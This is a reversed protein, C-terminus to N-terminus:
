RRRLSLAPIPSAPIQAAEDSTGGADGSRGPGYGAGQWGGRLSAVSSSVSPAASERSHFVSGGGGEGAREGGGRALGKQASESFFENYNLRLLLQRLYPAKPDNALRNSRLITYLRTSQRAFSNGLTEVEAFLNASAMTDDAQGSVLKTVAACLGGALKMINEVVSTVSDLDLFSQATLAALFARHARQAEVFDGAASIRGVMTQYQAEVVDVQLYTLWNNVVFAMEHRVRRCVGPAGGREGDDTAFSRRSQNGGGGLREGGTGMAGERRLRRWAEDLALSTRRLRLLYQFLHNYRRLAERTLILGLPWPVAYELLLGDWADYSPVKVRPGEGSPGADADRGGQDPAFRLSLNAFLPDDAGSSKLAAQAFPAAMDAEATALRPPARLLEAAEEFLSQFFDGRGLLYYSRLAGLHDLLRADTVVLRGLRAAVPRRIGEVAAEFAARHFDDADDALRRLAATADAAVAEPLLDLGRFEGRPNSLVRVARGVFLASEAAPLEIGPPLAELSVQFGRHWESEGTDAEASSRSASAGHETGVGLGYAEWGGGGTAATSQLVDDGLWVGGDAGAGAVPRVWFEGNPDVLLGHVMWALLQQYMARYCRARLGRLASELQPAGAALAASHLHHLLAAGRM